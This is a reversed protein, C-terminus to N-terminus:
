ALTEANMLELLQANIHPRPRWGRKCNEITPLTMKLSGYAIDRVHQTLGLRSLEAPVDCEGRYEVILRHYPADIGACVDQDTVRYIPSDDVIFATSFVTGYAAILYAVNLTASEFDAVAAAREPQPLGTGGGLADAVIGAHGGRPYHFATRISARARLTQPWYLPLWLSRHYKAAIASSSLGAIKRCMPEIFAAHFQEGHFGISAMALPFRDNWEHKHVLGPHVDVPIRLDDQSWGEPVAELQNAIYLDPWLRGRWLMQPTPVENFEIGKARLWAGIRPFQHAEHQRLASFEFLTMARDFKCGFHEVPRLFPLMESGFM